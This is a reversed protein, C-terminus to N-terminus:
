KKLIEIMKKATNPGVRGDGGNLEKTQFEKILKETGPGFDGDAVINKEPFYITLFKQIVTASDGKSGSRIISDADVIKQLGNILSTKDLTPNTTEIKEPTTETVKEPETKTNDFLPVEQDETAVEEVQESSSVIDANKDYYIGNDITTFAWYIGSGLLALLIINVIQYKIENM